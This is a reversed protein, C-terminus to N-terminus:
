VTRIQVMFYVQATLDLAHLTRTCDDQCGTVSLPHLGLLGFNKMFDTTPRHNLVDNICSSACAGSRDDDYNAISAVLNTLTQVSLGVDDKYHLSLLESGPM